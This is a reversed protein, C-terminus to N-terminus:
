VRLSYISEILSSGRNKEPDFVVSGSIVSFAIVIMVLILVSYYVDM